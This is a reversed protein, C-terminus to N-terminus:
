AISLSPPPEDVVAVVDVCNREVVSLGEAVSKGRASLAVVVSRKDNPDVKRIILAREVLKDVHRTLSAPPLVAAESLDRMRLGPRALLVALIQWHEIHLGEADLAPQLRQRLIHEAQKLRLTISDELVGSPAAVPAESDSAQGLGKSM